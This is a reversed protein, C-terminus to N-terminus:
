FGCNDARSSARNSNALDSPRIETAVGFSLCTDQDSCLFRLRLVPSCIHWFGFFDNGYAFNRILYNASHNEGVQRLDLSVRLRMGIRVCSVPNEAGGVAQALNRHTIGINNLMAFE